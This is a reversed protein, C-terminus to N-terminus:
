WIRREELHAIVAEDWGANAQPNGPSPHIISTVTTPMGLRDVTGHLKREAYRGIGVLHSPRVLAVVDDLYRDCCAELAAREQKPLKEPIVNKGTKGEDIFVLPCYNMVAHTAFFREPSGFRRAMLSWLRKGSVESRGIALGRVPRAPHEQLPKGIPHSLQMWDRVAGIEGFPIGTQAMGFPGPNMGLFFVHVREHVFRCLYAAHMKWAYSLPNYVYGPFTFTLTDVEDSFRKTRAVLEETFREM